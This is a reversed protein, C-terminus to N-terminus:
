QTVAFGGEAWALIGGALHTATEGSAALAEAAIGSRHGSRCYLVRQKGETAPLATADFSDLPVNVAGEIHGESFEEPTRVDILQVDGKGVRAALTAADITHVQVAANGAGSPSASGALETAPKTNAPAQDGCGALALAALLAASVGASLPRRM